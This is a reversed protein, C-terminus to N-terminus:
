LRFENGLYVRKVHENNLINTPSGEAILHGKSVIYARECVDLTERVNHDTILVLLHSM